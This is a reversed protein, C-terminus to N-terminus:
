ATTRSTGRELFCRACLARKDSGLMNVTTGCQVCSFKAPDERQGGAKGTVVEDSLRMWREVAREADRDQAM